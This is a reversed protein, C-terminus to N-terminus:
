RLSQTTFSEFVQFDNEAEDQELSPKGSCALAQKVGGSSDNFGSNSLWKEYSGQDLHRMESSASDFIESCLVRLDCEAVITRNDRWKLENFEKLGRVSSLVTERASVKSRKPPAASPFVAALEIGAAELKEMMRGIVHDKDKILGLLSSVESRADSLSALCPVVFETSLVHEAARSLDMRWRLPELPHPLPATLELTISSALNTPKISLSTYERGELAEQINQLLLKFQDPGESPDISADEGLARQIIKKRDLSETWIHTLDTLMITYASLKFDHKVLFPPLDSEAGLPLPQWKSITM